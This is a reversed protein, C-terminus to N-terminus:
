TCYASHSCVCSILGGNWDNQRANKLVKQLMVLIFFPLWKNNSCRFIFTRVKHDWWATKKPKQPIWRVKVYGSNVALDAWGRMTQIQALDGLRWLWTFNNKSKHFFSPFFFSATNRLSFKYQSVDNQQKHPFNICSTKYFSANHQGHVLQFLSLKTTVVTKFHRCVFETRMRETKM